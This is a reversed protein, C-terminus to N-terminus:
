FAIRLLLTCLGGLHTKFETERDYTLRIPNGYMDFSKVSKMIGKSYKTLFSRKSSTTEEM